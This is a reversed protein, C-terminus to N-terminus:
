NSSYIINLAQELSNYIDINEIYNIPHKLKKTTEILINQIDNIYNINKIYKNEEMNSDITRSSFRKISTEKDSIYVLFYIIKNPYKNNLKNILDANVHVGEIIISENNIIHYNIIEDIFNFLLACQKSYNEICRKRLLTHPISDKIYNSSYNECEDRIKGNSFNFNPYHHTDYAKDDNVRSSYGIGNDINTANKKMNLNEDYEEDDSNVLKWSEYTSFKLYKDGNTDYKRLIERIIDTSLIRNINLFLSLLCSLTSKGSGSTGSLVIIYNNRAGGKIYRVWDDLEKNIIENDLYTNITKDFKVVGIEDYIVDKTTSNSQSDNVDENKTSIKDIENFISKELEINTIDLEFSRTKEMNELGGIKFIHDEKEERKEISSYNKDVFNLKFKNNEYIVNIYIKNIFYYESCIYIENGKKNYEVLPVREKFNIIDDITKKRREIDARIIDNIISGDMYDINM